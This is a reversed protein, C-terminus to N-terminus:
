KWVEGRNKRARPLSILLQLLGFSAAALASYSSGRGMTVFLYEAGAACAVCLLVSALLLVRSRIQEFAAPIGILGCLAGALM